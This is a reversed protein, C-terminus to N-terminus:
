KKAEKPNFGVEDGYKGLQEWVGDAIRKYLLDALKAELGGLVRDVIRDGLQALAGKWGEHENPNSEQVEYSIAIRSNNKIDKRDQDTFAM